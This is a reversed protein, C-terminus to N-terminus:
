RVGATSRTGARTTAAPCPALNWVYGATSPDRGIVPHSILCGGTGGNADNSWTSQMAFSGTAFVVNAMPGIWACKDANESDPALWGGDPNQNTITEAYEHGAVITVGDLDGSSGTNVAYAGCLTGADALYPLNTFAVDGVTSAAGVEGNWTHWACFHGGNNFGDPHTGTPSVIVYQADRNVATPHQRLVRGRQGGRHGIQQRQRQRAGRDPQRLLGRGPAAPRTASTGHTPRATRPVLDVGECYQTMVGSWLEGRTGIGKFLQQLRPAM